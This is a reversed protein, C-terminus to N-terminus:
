RNFRCSPGIRPLIRSHASLGEFRFGVVGGAKYLNAGGYLIDDCLSQRFFSGTQFGFSADGLTLSMVEFFRNLLWEGPFLAAASRQQEATQGPLVFLQHM